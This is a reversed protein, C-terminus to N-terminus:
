LGRYHSALAEGDEGLAGYMRALGAAAAMLDARGEGAERDEDDEDDEDDEGGGKGPSLARALTSMDLSSTREPGSSGAGRVATDDHGEGRTGADRSNGFPDEPFSGDGGRPFSELAATAADVAGRIVDRKKLLTDRVSGADEATGMALVRLLTAALQAGLQPKYRLDALASEGDAGQSHSHGTETETTELSELAATVISVTDPYANGFESREGLTALTAAAHMRIKFNRTDRMLMLLMRVVLPSWASDGAATSPNRFLAAMAHCANWQVKANGTTLCSMLAQIVGPLWASSPESSFDAASVLYGLARAANARVKDGEQTAAAVCSEAIKALAGASVISSRRAATNCVNAVAWSAPLRVSKASDKMARLLLDVSPELADRLASGSSENTTLAALAGIARCAAARVAPARENALTARPADVLTRRNAESTGALADATLGAYASLGAARVLPSPHLTMAPFQSSAVDDWLSALEDPPLSWGEDCAKERRQQHSPHQQHSPDDDAGAGGGGGGGGVAALFEALLKASAQAVRAAGDAGDDSGSTAFTKAPLISRFGFSDEDDLMAAVAAPHAAAAARLAGFAECRTAAGHGGEGAAYRVLAPLVDALSPSTGTTTVSTTDSPAPSLSGTVEAPAGKAALVATLAALLSVRAAGVEPDQSSGEHTPLENLRRVVAEMSKPIMDRPLRAFPAADHFAGLAKCAAPVCSLAPEARVARTLAEHTARAIDGLTSSLSAFNARVVAGTKPNTRVEAAALYRKTAPGELLNATAAMAAARVRPSPDNLACRVVTATPSRALLQTASTPLLKPWHAHMSRSDARALASVCLAANTRVKSAGFRDGNSGNSGRAGEADSADSDSSGYGGGGGGGSRLHPPVYGGRGPSSPVEDSQGGGSRHGAGSTGYAFFRRLHTVLAGVTEDPWTLRREGGGAGACAHACRTAAAFLRASGADEPPRDRGLTAPAGAPSSAVGRTEADFAAAIAEGVAAHARPSVSGPSARGVLAGLANFAHRATDRAGNRASRSEAEGGGGGGGAGGRTKKYSIKALLASILADVERAALQAGGEQLLQALTKLSNQTARPDEEDADDTTLAGLYYEALTAVFERDLLLRQAALLDGVLADLAGRGSTSTAGAGGVDPRNVARALLLVDASIEAPTADGDPPPGLGSSDDLFSRVATRLADGSSSSRAADKVPAIAVRWPAGGARAAFSRREERRARSPPARPADHWGGMDTAANRFPPFRIGGRVGSGTM